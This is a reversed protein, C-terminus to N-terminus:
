VSIRSTGAETGVHTHGIGTPTPTLPDQGSILAPLGRSRELDQLHLVHPDGPHRHNDCTDVLPARSNPPHPNRTNPPTTFSYATLSAPLIAPSEETELVPKKLEKKEHEGKGLMDRKEIAKRIEMFDEKGTWEGVLDVVDEFGRAQVIHERVRKAETKGNTKTMSNGSAMQTASIEGKFQSLCFKTLNWNNGLYKALRIYAPILTEHVDRLPPPDISFCSPNSEAGRAIMVSDAGTIEKVRGIADAADVCDGNAIVAIDERGLTRKVYDVIERLHEITARDKERQNRTRCHVTLANIANTAIIKQVLALTEEQTPLLRIKVSVTKERPVAERLATLISCLLEPTSLLAAGMGSHTSFPKPCGCNLDFGSVDPLVHLAAQVALAPNSSGLQYILYPKEIPHTTFIAKQSNNNPGFYSIVGTSPNVSRTSHLIAKDIIEPSWVLSASHKLAFLRTPVIKSTLISLSLLYNYYM